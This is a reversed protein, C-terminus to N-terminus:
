MYKFKEGMEGLLMNTILTEQRQKTQERQTNTADQQFLEVNSCYLASFDCSNYLSKCCTLTQACSKLVEDSLVERSSVTATKANFSFALM